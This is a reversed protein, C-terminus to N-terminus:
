FLTQQNIPVPKAAPPRQAVRVPNIIIKSDEIEIEEETLNETLCSFRIGNVEIIAMHGSDEIITVKQGAHGYEHKPNVHSHIDRKLKM